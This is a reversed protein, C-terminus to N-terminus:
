TSEQGKEKSNMYRYCVQKVGSETSYKGAKGAVEAWTMGYIFRFRFVLKTRCDAIADIFPIIEREEAQSVVELRKIDEQLVLMEEAYDATKDSIGPPRPMDSLKPSRPAIARELEELMERDSSINQLTRWHENLKKLTM